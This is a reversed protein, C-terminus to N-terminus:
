NEQIKRNLEKVAEVLLGVVADYRVFKIGNIESVADPLVQALDQAMIGGNRNQPENGIYNYSYGNLQSVKDLANEVPKVNEKVREDSFLAALQLGAQIDGGTGGGTIGGGGGGFLGGLGGLLGTGPAPPGVGGLGRSGGFGGLINAFGQSGAFSGLAPLLSQFLGPQQQTAFNQFAQTGLGLPGFQGLLQAPQQAAQFQATLPQQAIGRQIGGVNLLQGLLDSGAAGFGLSQGALVGPLQALNGALGAGAQQLGPAQLAAQGIFPAEQARLGLGLREGARALQEQLAGSGGSTAGFRELLDPVIQQQFTETALRRSPEFAASIAQTDVPQLGRQLAGGAQGLFGQSISPDFGALGQGAIGLGQQGLGGLAGFGGFAQQQLGSIPAFQQAGTPTLAQGTLPGLGSLLQNLFDKQPKSLVEAQQIDAGGGGGGGFIDGFLGM